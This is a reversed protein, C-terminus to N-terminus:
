IIMPLKYYTVKRDGFAKPNEPEFIGNNWGINCVKIPEIEPNTPYVIAVHGSRKWNPNKWCALIPFGIWAYYQAVKKTLREVEGKKEAKECNKCIINATGTIIGSTRTKMVFLVKTIANMFEAIIRAAINCFTKKKKRYYKPDNVVENCKKILRERRAKNKENYKKMEEEHIKDYDIM